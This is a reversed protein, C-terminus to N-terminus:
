LIQQLIIVVSKKELFSNAFIYPAPIQLTLLLLNITALLQFNEQHDVLRHFLFINIGLVILWLSLIYNNLVKEKRVLIVLGLFVAIISGIHYFDSLM